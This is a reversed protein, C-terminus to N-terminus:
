YFLRVKNAEVAKLKAQTYKQLTTFIGILTKHSKSINSDIEQLTLIITQEVKDLTNYNQKVSDLACNKNVM